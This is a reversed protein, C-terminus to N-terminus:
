LFSYSQFGDLPPQMQNISASALFICISAIGTQIDKKRIVNGRIDVPLNGEGCDVGCLM